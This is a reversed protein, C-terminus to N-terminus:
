CTGLVVNRKKRLTYVTLQRTGKDLLYILPEVPDDYFQFILSDSTSTNFNKNVLMRSQPTCHLTDNADLQEPSIEYAFLYLQQDAKSYALTTYFDQNAGYLPLFTYGQLTLLELVFESYTRRTYTQINLDLIYSNWKLSRLLLKVNLSGEYTNWAGSLIQISNFQSSTINSFVAPADVFDMQKVQPPTNATADPDYEIEVIGVAPGAFFLMWCINSWIQPCPHSFVDLATLNLHNIGIMYQSVEVKLEPNCNASNVTFIRLFVGFSDPQTMVFVHQVKVVVSIVNPLDMFANIVGSDFCYTYLEQPHSGNKECLLIGFASSNGMFLNTCFTSEEITFARQTWSSMNNTSVEASKNHLIFYSDNARTFSQIDTTNLDVPAATIQPTLTLSGYPTVDFITGGFLEGLKCKLPPSVGTLDFMQKKLSIKLQTNFSSITLNTKNALGSATNTAQLILPVSSYPKDLDVTTNTISILPYGFIQNVNWKTDYWICLESSSVSSKVIRVSAFLSLDKALITDYFMSNGSLMLNLVTTTPNNQADLTAVYLLCQSSLSLQPTTQNNFKIPFVQQSYVQKFDSIDFVELADRSTYFIVLKNMCVTVNFPESVNMVKLVRVPLTFDTPLEIFMIFQSCQVFIVNPFTQSFKVDVPDFPMGVAESDIIRAKPTANVLIDFPDFVEIFVNGVCFFFPYDFILPDMALISSCLLGSPLPLEIHKDQFPTQTIQYFVLLQDSQSTILQVDFLYSDLLIDQIFKANQSIIPTCRISTLLSELGVLDLSCDFAELKEGKTIFVLRMMNDKNSKDVRILRLDGSQPLTAENLRTEKKRIVFTYNSYTQIQYSLFAGDFVDAISILSFYSPLMESSSKLPIVASSNSPLSLVNFTRTYLYPSDYTKIALTVNYEGTFNTLNLAPRQLTYIALSENSAAILTNTQSDMYLYSTSYTQKIRNFVSFSFNEKLNYMFLYPIENNNISVAAFDQNFSSAKPSLEGTLSMVFSETLVNDVCKYIRKQGILLVSDRNCSCSTQAALIQDDGFTINSSLDIAVTGNSQRQARLIQTIKSNYIAFYMTSKITWVANLNASKYSTLNLSMFFQVPKGPSYSLIDINFSSTSYRIIQGNTGDSMPWYIMERRYNSPPEDTGDLYTITAIALNKIIIVFNTCNKQDTPKDFQLCDILYSGDDLKLMSYCEIRSTNTQTLSITTTWNIFSDNQPITGLSFILLTPELVAITSGPMWKSATNNAPSIIFQHKEALERVFTYSNRTTLGPIVNFPFGDSISFSLSNGVYYDHLYVLKTQDENMIIDPIEKKIYFDQTHVPLIAAAILFISIWPYKKM